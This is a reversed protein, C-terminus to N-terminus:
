SSGLRLASAYEAIFDLARDFTAFEFPEPPRSEFAVKFVGGRPAISGLLEGECSLVWAAGTLTCTMSAIEAVADDEWTNM